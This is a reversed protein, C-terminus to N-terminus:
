FDPMDTFIDQDFVSTSDTLYQLTVENTAEHVTMNEFYSATAWVIGGIILPLKYNANLTPCSCKNNSNDNKSNEFKVDFYLIVYTVIGAMLGFLLPNLNDLDINM